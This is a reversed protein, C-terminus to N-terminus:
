SVLLSGEWHRLVKRGGADLAALTNHCIKGRTRLAIKVEFVRAGLAGSLATFITDRPRGPFQGSSQYTHRNRSNANMMSVTHISGLLGRPVAPHTFVAVGGAVETPRYM